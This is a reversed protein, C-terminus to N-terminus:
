KWHTLTKAMEQMDSTADPLQAARQYAKAADKLRGARHYAIGLNYWARAPAKRTNTATELLRVAHAIESKTMAEVGQREVALEARDTLNVQPWFFTSGAVCLLCAAVLGGLAVRREMGKACIALGLLVGFGAGAAHAVNAVPMIHAVTLVICLFFWGVFTQTVQRNVVGQFRPDNREIVWLMAWLGYGVGSLGVGGEVLAFDALSSGFALLVIIGALKLHGYVKEVVTGFRWFWYLNFALHFFNAHPLTSTLARWLEWRAWVPEGMCLREIDWGSWWALTVGVAAISVSATVPYRPIEKLSPSDPMAAFFIGYSTSALNM